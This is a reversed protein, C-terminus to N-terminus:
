PAPSASPAPSGSAAPASPLASPLAAGAFTVSFEIYDITMVSDLMVAAIVSLDTGPANVFHWCGDAEPPTVEYEMPDSNTPGYAEWFDGSGSGCVRTDVNTIHTDPLQDAPLRYTVWLPEGNSEGTSLRAADGDRSLTAGPPVVSEVYQSGKIRYVVTEGPNVAGTPLVIPDETRLPPMLTPRPTPVPTTTPTVADTPVATPAPTAVSAATPTPSPTALPQGSGRIVGYGVSLVAMTLLFSGIALAVSRFRGSM